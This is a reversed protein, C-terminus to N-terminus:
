LETPFVERFGVRSGRGGRGQVREVEWEWEKGKNKRSWRRGRERGMVEKSERGKERRGGAEGRVFGLVFLPSNKQGVTLKRELIPKEQLIELTFGERRKM